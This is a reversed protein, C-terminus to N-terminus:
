FTFMFGLNISSSANSVEAKSGTETRIDVDEWKRFRYDAFVRASETIDYGVGAILQGAWAEESGDLVTEGGISLNDFRQTGYGLGAGVYPVWPRGEGRFDYFVNLFTASEELTGDSKGSMGSVKVRDVDSARGSFQLETRLEGLSGVQGFSYGAMLSLDAGGGYSLSFTEAGATFDEDSHWVGGLLGGGYFGQEAMVPGALLMSLAVAGFGLRRM